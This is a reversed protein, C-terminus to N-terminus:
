TSYGNHITLYLKQANKIRRVLRAAPPSANLVAFLFAAPSM